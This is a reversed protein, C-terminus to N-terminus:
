LTEQLRPTIQANSHVGLNIELDNFRFPGQKSWELGSKAARRGKQSIRCNRMPVPNVEIHLDIRDLLPGSIKNLYRQVAYCSDPHSSNPDYFDGSPSPNMAAVLM